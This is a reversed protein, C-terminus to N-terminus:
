VRPDLTDAAKRSEEMKKIVPPNLELTRTVTLTRPTFSLVGDRLAGNWRCWNLDKFCVRNSCFQKLYPLIKRVYIFLM